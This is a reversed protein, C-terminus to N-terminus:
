GLWKWWVALFGTPVPPVRRHVPRRPSSGGVGQSMDATAIDMEGGGLDGDASDEGFPGGRVERLKLDMSLFSFSSLPFFFAVEVGGGGRVSTANKPVTGFSGM